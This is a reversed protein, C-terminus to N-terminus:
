AVFPPRAPACSSPHSHALSAFSPPTCPWRSASCTGLLSYNVLVSSNGRVQSRLEVSPVDCQTEPRQQFEIGADGAM